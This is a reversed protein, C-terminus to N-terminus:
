DNNQLTIRIGRKTGDASDEDLTFTSSLNKGFDESVGDKTCRIIYRVTVTATQTDSGTYLPIYFIGKGKVVCQSRVSVAGDPEYRYLEQPSDCFVRSRKVTGGESAVYHWNPEGRNWLTLRAKELLTCEIGAYLVLVEVTDYSGGYENRIANVFASSCAITVEDGVCALAHRFEFRLRDETQPKSQDLLPACYLLDVQRDVDPHIRYLLWPDGQEKPNCFSPICYGAPNSAPNSSDGDSYPAYAFFSVYHDLVGIGSDGEGSPWYKVPEYDWSDGAVWTVQQNHMFDSSVNSESYRNLGTYSGFVGFGYAHLREISSIEGSAKTESPYGVSFAIPANDAPRLYLEPERSCSAAMMLLTVAALTHFYRTM